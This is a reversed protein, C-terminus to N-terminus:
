HHGCFSNHQLLGTSVLISWLFSMLVYRLVQKSVINSFWSESIVQGKSCATNKYSELLLLDIYIWKFLDCNHCFCISQVTKMFILDHTEKSHIEHLIYPKPKTTHSLLLSLIICLSQFHLVISLYTYNHTTTIIHLLQITHALCYKVFILQAM